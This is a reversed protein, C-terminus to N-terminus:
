CEEYGNRKEYKYTNKYLRKGVLADTLVVIKDDTKDTM